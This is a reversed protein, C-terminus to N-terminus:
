RYTDIGKFKFFGNELAPLEKFEATKIDLHGQFRSDGSPHKYKKGFRWRQNRKSLKMCHATKTGFFHIVGNDIDILMWISEPPFKNGLSAYLLGGVWYSLNKGGGIRLTSCNRNKKELMTNM